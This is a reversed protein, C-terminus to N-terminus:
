GARRKKDGASFGVKKLRSTAFYRDAAIQDFAAARALETQVEAPNCRLGASREILPGKKQARHLTWLSPRHTYGAINIVIFPTYSIALPVFLPLVM